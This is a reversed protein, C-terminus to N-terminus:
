AGVCGCVTVRSQWYFDVPSLGPLHFLAMFGVTLAVLAVRASRASVPACLASQLLSASFLGKGRTFTLFWKRRLCFYHKVFDSDQPVIRTCDFLPQVAVPVFHGTSHGTRVEDSQLSFTGSAVFRFTTCGVRGPIHYNDLYLMSTFRQTRRDVKKACLVGKCSQQLM